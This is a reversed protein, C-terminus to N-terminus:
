YAFWEMSSVHRCMNDEPDVGLIRDKASKLMVFWMVQHIGVMEVMGVKSSGCCRDEGSDFWMEVSSPADRMFVCALSLM